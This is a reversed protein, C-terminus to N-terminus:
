RLTIRWAGGSSRVFGDGAPVVARWAHRGRLGAVDVRFSWRSGEARQRGTTTWPGRGARHQLLVVGAYAPAVEGEHAFTTAGTRRMTDDLRRAVKVTHDTRSAAHVVDGHYEVRYDTTREPLVGCFSFVGTEPDTTSSGHYSWRGGHPRQWLHVEADPLAGDSTVVQGEVVADGGYTTSRTVRTFRVETAVLGVPLASSSPAAQPPCTVAHAAPGVPVLLATVAAALALAARSLM